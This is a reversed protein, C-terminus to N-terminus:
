RPAEEPLITDMQRLVCPLQCGVDVLAVMERRLQGWAERLREVEAELEAIRELAASEGALVSEDIAEMCEDLIDDLTIAEAELEAIRARQRDLEDGAENISLELASFDIGKM